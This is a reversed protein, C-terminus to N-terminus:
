STGSQLPAQAPRRSRAVTSARSGPRVAEDGYSDEGYSDEGYADGEYTTEYPQQEVAPAQEQTVTSTVPQSTGAGLSPDDGGAMRVALLVLVALFIAVATAATAVVHRSRLRSSM